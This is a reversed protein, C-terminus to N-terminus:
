LTGKTPIKEENRPLASKCRPSGPEEHVANKCAVCLAYMYMVHCLACIVHCAAYMVHCMACTM